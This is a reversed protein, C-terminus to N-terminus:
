NICSNMIIWTGKSYLTVPIRVSYVRQGVSIFSLGTGNRHFTNTWHRLKYRLIYGEKYPSITRSPKRTVKVKVHSPHRSTTTIHSLAWNGAWFTICFLKTNRITKAEPVTRWQYQKWPVSSLTVAQWQGMKGSKLEFLSELSPLLLAMFITCFRTLSLSMKKKTNCM